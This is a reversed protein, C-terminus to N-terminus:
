VLLFAYGMAILVVIALFSWLVFNGFFIKNGDLESFPLMSFFAFYINWRAFDPFGIFYGVIAFVLNAVVGAAAIYGIHDETMESFKYVGHRKAAKYVKPKVDFVLCALWKVYGFTLAIFVLPLILGAQLPKRFKRQPHLYGLSFVAALGYRQIEWLRVEIDIEYYYGAVKKAFVNVMIVLFIGLLSYLFIEVTEVLSLIFGLILTIVLIAGIERKNLM